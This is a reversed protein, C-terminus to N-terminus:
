LSSILLSRSIERALNVGRLDRLDPGGYRAFRKLQKSLNRLLDPEDGLDLDGAVTTRAPSARQRNRRDLEDLAQRTLWLKSLSDWYATSTEQQSQRRRKVRKRPPHSTAITSHEQEIASQKRKRGCSPQNEPAVATMLCTVKCLESHSDLLETSPRPIVQSYAVLM